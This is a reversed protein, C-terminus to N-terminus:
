EFLKNDPLYFGELFDGRFTTMLAELQAITRADNEEFLAVDLEYDSAPNFQITDRTIILYPPLAVRDGLVDRLNALVSRLNNTASRDPYNPWLLAALSERAHPRESEVALFALLARVKNSEFGTLILGDLAAQFPGLFSLTLRAM